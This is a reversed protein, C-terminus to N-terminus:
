LFYRTFGTGLGTVNREDRIRHPRKKVGLQTYSLVTPRYVLKDKKSVGETKLSVATVSCHDRTM